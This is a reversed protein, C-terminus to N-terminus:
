HTVYTPDVPNTVSFLVKPDEQMDYRVDINWMKWTGDVSATAVRKCDPAFSIANVGRKHGKLDMVHNKKIGAFMNTKKDYLAEWIKVDATFCGVAFFRSDPSIAACFNKIQKTDIKEIVKGQLNWVLVETETSCSVIYAASPALLISKMPHKHMSPFEAKLTYHRGEKGKKEHIQYAAIRQKDGLGVIMDNGTQAAIWVVLFQIDDAVSYYLYILTRVSSFDCFIANDYEM